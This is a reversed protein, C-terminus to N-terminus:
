KKLKIQSINKSKSDNIIKIANTIFMDFQIIKRRSKLLSYSSIAGIEAIEGKSKDDLDKLSCLKIIIDTLITSHDITTIMLNNLIKRIIIINELSAELILEIVTNIGSSYDTKIDIKYKAFELNWLATKLNGNCSNVITHVNKMQDIMGEKVCIKLLYEYIDIKDPSPVRICMCRSRLPKIIKCITTCSMVFRCIETQQEMTRRLSTQAYYSMNDINNINIIKFNRNNKFVGLSQRQAYERVIDHILYKDYNTNKPEIVIHYDSQKIKEKTPKNNSANVDYSVTKLKNVVDKNFLMTLFLKIMTKKGSGNPGCFIIHPLDNDKSINELFDYIDKHFFSEKLEYPRYKDIFSM